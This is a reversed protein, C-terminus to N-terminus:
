WGKVGAMWRAISGQDESPMCRKWSNLCSESSEVLETSRSSDVAQPTRHLRHDDTSRSTKRPPTSRQPAPPASLSTTTPQHPPTRVDTTPVPLEPKLIARDPHTRLILSATADGPRGVEIAHVIIETTMPLGLSNTDLVMDFNHPDNSNARHMTRDFQARRRDLDRAACRATRISVGMREALRIARVKLPAIVRLSLTTERPLMFGAGRGVLISEGARGIAEILKALHDLYAEQPAYYEERLPLLWDQVMSPALEDLAQIEDIPQGMRHAIAEILEQDYVKWGLRQGLLRALASAGRRGRPQHLHEPVSRGSNGTRRARAARRWRRIALAGRAAAMPLTRWPWPGTRRDSVDVNGAVGGHRTGGFSCWSENLRFAALSLSFGHRKKRERSLGSPRVKGRTSARSGSWTVITEECIPLAPTVAPGMGLWM